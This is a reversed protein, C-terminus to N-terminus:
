YSTIDVYYLVIDLDCLLSLVLYLLFTRWLVTGANWLGALISVVDGIRDGNHSADSLCLLLFTFM